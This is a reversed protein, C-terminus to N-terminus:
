SKQLLMSVKKCVAHHDKGFGAFSSRAEQDKGFGAFSSRAEQDKGFGALSSRAEQDKVFGAIQGQWFLYPRKWFRSTKLLITGMVKELAM